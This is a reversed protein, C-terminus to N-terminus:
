GGRLIRDGVRRYPSAVEGANLDRLLQSGAQEVSRHLAEFLADLIRTRDLTTTPRTQLSMMASRLSAAGATQYRVWNRGFVQNNWVSGEPQANWIFSELRALKALLTQIVAHEPQYIRAHDSSWDKQNGASVALVVAHRPPTREMELFQAQLTVEERALPMAGEASPVVDATLLLYGGFSRGVSDGRADRAWEVVMDEESRLLYRRGNLGSLIATGPSIVLHGEDLPEVTGPPGTEVLRGKIELGELILGATAVSREEGVTPQSKGPKVDVATRPEPMVRALFARLAEDQVDAVAALSGLDVVAGDRPQFVHTKRM